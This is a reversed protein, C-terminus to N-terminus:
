YDRKLKYINYVDEGIQVYAIEDAGLMEFELKEIGYKEMFKKLIEESIIVEFYYDLDINLKLLQYM